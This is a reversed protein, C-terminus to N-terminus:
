LHGSPSNLLTFYIIYYQENDDMELWLEGEHANIVQESLRLELHSHFLEQPLDFATLKQTNSSNDALDANSLRVLTSSELTQAHCFIVSPRTQKIIFNLCNYIIQILKDQAIQLECQHDTIRNKFQISRNKFQVGPADATDQIIAIAQACSEPM